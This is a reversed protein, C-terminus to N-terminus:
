KKIIKASLIKEDNELYIKLIYVGSTLSSMNMVNENYGTNISSNKDTLVVKGATNYLLYNATTKRKANISVSLLDDSIYSSLLTYNVTNSGNEDLSVIHSYKYSGDNDIMKLRYYVTKVHNIDKYMYNCSENSFCNADTTYIKSFSLGDSSRELEYHSFDVENMVEWVVSTSTSGNKEASFHLLDVAMPIPATLRIDDIAASPDTGSGNGNNRWHYAVRVNPNNNFAAPLALTYTTWQGQSYGNCAGCCVSTLCYQYGVPWTAGGDASLQLQLRDDSCAASGYAIFDFALTITSYGATSIAPSTARKYTANATGTENFSAGMDGGGGADAGIHLSADGICSTGCGPPTIGEEACSIFWNNSSGGSVGGVNNVITWGNWTNALCNSSCGNNFNDSWINAQSFIFNSTLFVAVFLHFLNIFTQKM